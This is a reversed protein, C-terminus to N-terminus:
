GVTKKPRFFEGMEGGASPTQDLLDAGLSSPRHHSSVSPQFHFLVFPRHTAVVSFSGGMGDSLCVERRKERENKTTRQLFSPLWRLLPPRVTPRISDLIRYALEDDTAATPYCGLAALSPAPRRGHGWRQLFTVFRHRSLLFQLHQNVKFNSNSSFV